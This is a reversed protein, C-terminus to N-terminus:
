EEKKNNEDKEDDIGMAYKEIIYQTALKLGREQHEPHIGSDTFFEVENNVKSYWIKNVDKLGLTDLRTIKKFNKLKDQDLSIVHKNRLTNDMCNVVIYRDQFWVMCENKDRLNLYGLSAALLTGSGIALLTKKGIKTKRPRSASPVENIPPDTPDAKTLDPIINIPKETSNHPQDTWDVIRFPRPQFDIFVALLKVITEDPNSTKRNIFYQVPKLKDIDFSSIARELDSFDDKSGFFERLNKKDEANIEVSILYLAYDRLNAPTPNALKSHLENNDNKEWYTRLVEEKFKNFAAM